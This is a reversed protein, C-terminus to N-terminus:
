PRAPAPITLGIEANEEPTANWYGYRDAIELFEEPGRGAIERFFRAITGTSVLYM